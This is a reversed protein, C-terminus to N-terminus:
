GAPTPNLVFDRCLDLLYNDQDVIIVKYRGQLVPGIWGHRRNFAQTYVPILRRM